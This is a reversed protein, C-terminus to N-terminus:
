EKEFQIGKTERDERALATCHKMATTFAGRQRTGSRLPVDTMATINVTTKEYIGKIMHLFNGGIGPKSLIKIM